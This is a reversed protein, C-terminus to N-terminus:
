DKIFKITKRKDNVIFDIFYIGSNWSTSNIEITEGIQFYEFKTSVLQGIGDFVRIESELDRESNNQIFAVGQSPNPFLNMGNLVNDISNISTVLSTRRFTMNDIYFEPNLNNPAAAPFFNLAGIVPVGTGSSQSEDSFTWTHISNGDILLESIDNDIDYIFTISHWTDDSWSFTAAATGGADLTGSTGGIFLNHAVPNGPIEDHQLNFSAGSGANTLMKFSAEWIGASFNGMPYLADCSIGEMKGSNVGNYAFTNSVTGDEVTGGGSGSWTSWQQSVNGLFAGALYDDFDEKSKYIYIDDVYYLATQGTPAFPFINIGGLPSDFTFSGMPAGDKYIAIDDGVIDIVHSMRFWSGHTFTGSAVQAQDMIIEWSGDDSFFCEFAWGIGPSSDEQVNYYGGNGPEIYLSLEFTYEGESFNNLPILVDASGGGVCELSNSGSNAQSSVVFLDEDTGAGDGSWTDWVASQNGIYEGATYSEFNEEWFTQSHALYGFLMLLSVTLLFNRM